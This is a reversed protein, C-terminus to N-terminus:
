LPQHRHVTADVRAGALELAVHTFGAARAIDLVRARMAADSLDPEPGETILLLQRDRAELRLSLGLDALARSLGDLETM